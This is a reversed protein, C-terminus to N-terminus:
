SSAEEGLGNGAAIRNLKEAAGEFDFQSVSERLEVIGEAGPGGAIAAAVEEVAETAEADSEELLRKLKAIAHAAKERDYGPAAQPSREEGLARAIAEAQARIESEFKELLAEPPADGARVRKEVEAATAGVAAMGLNGAVGKVTHALREAEDKKGERLLRRVEGAGDAYKDAFQGLLRRYLGANGAVRNLGSQIDIGEVAPMEVGRRPPTPEAPGAAKPKTKVWRGIAAFLADPDIPKSIHDNMGADLCRQREEVLAHATM